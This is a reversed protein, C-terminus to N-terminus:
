IESLLRPFLELPLNYKKRFLFHMNNYTAFGNRYAIEKFSYNTFLQDELAGLMKMKNIFQHFTDGFYEKCDKQFQNYNKGFNRVLIRLSRVEALNESQLIRDLYRLTSPTYEISTESISLDYLFFIVSHENIVGIGNYLHLDGSKKVHINVPIIQTELIAPTLELLKRELEDLDKNIANLLDFRKVIKQKDYHYDGPVISVKKFFVIYSDLIKKTLNALKEIHNSSLLSSKVPLQSFRIMAGEISKDILSLLYINM